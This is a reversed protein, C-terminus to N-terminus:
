VRREIGIKRSRRQPIPCGGEMVFKSAASRCHRGDLLTIGEPPRQPLSSDVSPEGLPRDGPGDASGRARHPLPLFATSRRVRRCDGLELSQKPEFWVRERAQKAVNRQRRAAVADRADHIGHVGVRAQILLPAFEEGADIAPEDPVVGGLGLTGQVVVTLSRKKNDVPPPCSRAGVAGAVVAAAM